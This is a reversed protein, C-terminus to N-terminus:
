VRSILLTNDDDDFLHYSVRRQASSANADFNFCRHKADLRGRIRRDVRILDSQWLLSWGRHRPRPIIRVFLFEVCIACTESHFHQRMDNRWIQIQWYPGQSLVGKSLKAGDNLIWYMRSSPRLLELDDFCILARSELVDVDRMDGVEIM